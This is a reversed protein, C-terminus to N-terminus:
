LTDALIGLAGFLAGQAASLRRRLVTMYDEHRGLLPFVTLRRQIEQQGRAEGLEVRRIEENRASSSSRIGQSAGGNLNWSTVVVAM